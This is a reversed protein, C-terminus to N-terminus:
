ECEGLEEPAALRTRLADVLSGAGGLQPATGFVAFDAM